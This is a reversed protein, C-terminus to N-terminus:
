RVARKVAEEYLRRAEEPTTSTFNGNMYGCTLQEDLARRKLAIEEPPNHARIYEERSVVGAMFMRERCADCHHTEGRKRLREPQMRADVMCSAPVRRGCYQCRVDPDYGLEDALTRPTWIM